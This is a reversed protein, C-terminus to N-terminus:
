ARPVVASLCGDLEGENERKEGDEGDDDRLEGHNRPVL